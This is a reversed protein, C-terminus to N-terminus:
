CYTHIYNVGFDVVPCTQLGCEDTECGRKKIHVELNHNLKWDQLQGSDFLNRVFVRRKNDRRVCSCKWGM